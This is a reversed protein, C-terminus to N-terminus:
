MKQISSPNDTAQLMTIKQDEQPVQERAAGLYTNGPRIVHLAAVRPTPAPLLPQRACVNGRRVQTVFAAHPQPLLVMRATFPARASAKM